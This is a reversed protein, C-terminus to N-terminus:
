YTTITVERGERRKRRFIPFLKHIHPPSITCMVRWRSGYQRKSAVAVLLPACIVLYPHPRHQM